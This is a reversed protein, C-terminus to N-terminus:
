CRISQLALYLPPGDREGGADVRAAPAPDPLAPVVILPHVLVPGGGDVTSAVASLTAPAGAESSVQCCRRSEPVTVPRGTHASCHILARLEARGEAPAAVVTRVGLALAIALVARVSRRRKMAHGMWKWPVRRVRGM